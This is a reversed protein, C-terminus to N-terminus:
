GISPMRSFAPQFVGVSVQTVDRGAAVILADQGGPHKKMFETVNYVQLLPAIAILATCLCVLSIIHGPSAYPVHMAAVTRVKGRVAVFADTRKNHQALQEWTLRRKTDGQCM